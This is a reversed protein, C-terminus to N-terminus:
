FTGYSLHKMICPSRCDLLYTPTQVITFFNKSQDFCFDLNESFIYAYRCLVFRLLMHFCVEKLVYRGKPNPECACWWM